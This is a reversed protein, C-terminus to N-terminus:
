LVTAVFAGLKVLQAALGLIAEVSVARKGAIEALGAADALQRVVVADEHLLLNGLSRRRTDAAPKLAELLETAGAFVGYLEGRHDALWAQFDTLDKAM